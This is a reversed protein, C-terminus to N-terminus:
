RGGRMSENPEYEHLPLEIGLELLELKLKHIEAQAREIREEERAISRRLVDILPQQGRNDM